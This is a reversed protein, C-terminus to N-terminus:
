IIYKLGFNKTTDGIIKIKNIVITQKSLFDSFHKDCSDFDIHSTDNINYLLFSSYLDRQVLTNNILKVREALTPKTAIRTVHNYQSAKYDNSVNIVFGGFAKIKSTIISNFAGPARRNMSKGFRKKRKYKYVRKGKIITSKDSRKTNKSRKALAKFDMNEKIITHCNQIIRNALKNHKQNIFATKLRYANKLEMLAKIVGKTRIWKKKFLKSDKKVTGDTNYNDPNAMKLRRQYKAASNNIKREYKEVGDALVYFGAENDNYYAVTSTGEDIGCYGTGLTHKQPPNGEMIIQLFYHYKNKFPKRIIRCYKIKSKMADSLYTDNCRVPKLSFAIGMIKVTDTLANYIIGSNARKDEFSKTQGYKRYHIKTNKFVAKSVSQYLNTGLKQAINIGIGKNFSHQKQYGIYNHISYETLNYAEMCSTIESVAKKKIDTLVSFQSDDETLKKLKKNCEIMISYNYKYWEDAYLKNLNFLCYKAATNYIKNCIDMKKQLYDYKYQDKTIIKREVIFSSTSTRKM